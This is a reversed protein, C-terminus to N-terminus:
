ERSLPIGHQRPRSDCEYAPSAYRCEDGSRPRSDPNRELAVTLKRWMDSVAASSRSRFSLLAHAVDGPTLRDIRGGPSNMVSAWKDTHGYGLSHMMEHTVVRADSLSSRARLFVRADYVEGGSTWTILTVGDAGASPKIAVVIVDVPDDTPAITAPTFLRMGIDAEMQGLIEWYAVSDAPTIAEGRGHRFAVAIPLRAPNWGVIRLQSAVNVTRLYHASNKKAGNSPNLHIPAWIGSYTGAGIELTTDSVLPQATATAAGAFSAVVAALIPKLRLMM